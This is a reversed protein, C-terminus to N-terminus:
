DLGAPEHFFDDDGFFLSNEPQVTVPEPAVAVSPELAGTDDGFKV